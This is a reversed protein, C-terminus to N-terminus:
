INSKSFMKIRQFAVGAKMQCGVILFAAAQREKTISRYQKPMLVLFHMFKNLSRMNVFIKLRADTNWVYM